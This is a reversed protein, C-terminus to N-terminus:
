HILTNFEFVFFNTFVLEGKTSVIASVNYLEKRRNLRREKIIRERVSLPPQIKKLIMDFTSIKKLSKLRQTKCVKQKKYNCSDAM